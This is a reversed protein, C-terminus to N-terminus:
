GDRPGLGTHRAVHALLQAQLADPDIRARLEAEDAATEIAHNRLRRWVDILFGGHEDPAWPLGPPTEAFVPTPAREPERAAPAGPHTTLHATIEALAAERDLGWRRITVPASVAQLRDLHGHLPDRAMAGILTPVAVRDPGIEGRRKFAARYPKEYAQPALLWDRLRRLRTKLPTPPLHMRAALRAQHWPFFVLQEELRAWIRVLHAGDWVPPYTKLYHALLDAREDETWVAYGDLSLASVRAPERLAFSMATGAGTHFGYLGAQGVGFADLVASLQAAYDESSPDDHPLADSLGNGPTDLGIVDFGAMLREAIPALADASEPSGHLLIVVPAGRRGARQYATRLGNATLFGRAGWGPEFAGSRGAASM